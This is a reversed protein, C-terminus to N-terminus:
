RSASHAVSRRILDEIGSSAYAPDVSISTVTGGRTTARAITARGQRVVITTPTQQRLTALDGNRLVITARTNGNLTVLSTPQAPMREGRGVRDGRRRQRRAPASTGVHVTERSGDEREIFTYLFCRCNHVVVGNAQYMEYRCQLNYVHGSFQRRSLNLVRDIKISGPFRDLFDGIKDASRVFGHTAVEDFRADNARSADGSRHELAGLAVCEAGIDDCSILASIRHEANRVLEPDAPAHNRASDSICPQADSAAALGVQDAERSGGDIISASDRRLGIGSSPPLLCARDFQGSLGVPLLLGPDLSTAALDLQHIHKLISADRGARLVGNARVIDVDSAPVDGHFDVALQSARVNMRGSVLSNFVQEISPEVHNVDHAADRTDAQNRGGLGGSIIHSGEHLSGLAVWGEPTLVPHNPTGALKHGFATTIEVIEGDYWHRTAALVDGSVRTDGPFCNVVERLPAGLGTDGPFRLLAGGVQFPEDVNRIQGHAEHHTPRERGDMLSNWEQKLQGGTDLMRDIISEHRAEEAVVNTNVNAMAPIRARYRGVMGATVGAVKEAKAEIDDGESKAAVPHGTGDDPIAPAAGARELEIRMERDIANVIRQAQDKARNVMSAMHRMSLAAENVSPDRPPRRGTVVMSTRCYHRLLIQEFRAVHDMREFASLDRGGIKERAQIYDFGAVTLPTVIEQELALKAVLLDRAAQLDDAM